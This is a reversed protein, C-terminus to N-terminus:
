DIPLLDVLIEYHDFPPMICAGAFRERAAVLMERDHNCELLLADVGDSGVDVEQDDLLFSVRVATERCNRFVLVNGHDLDLFREVEHGLELLEELFRLSSGRAGITVGMLM